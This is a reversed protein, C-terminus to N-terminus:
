WRVGRRFPLALRKEVLHSDLETARAFELCLEVIGLFCNHPGVPM